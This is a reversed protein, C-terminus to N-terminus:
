SAFRGSWKRVTSKALETPIQQSQVLIVATAKFVPPLVAAVAGAVLTGTLFILAILWLRRRLAEIYVGLEFGM